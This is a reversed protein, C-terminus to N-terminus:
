YAKIEDGGNALKGSLRGFVAFSSAPVFFPIVQSSEERAGM